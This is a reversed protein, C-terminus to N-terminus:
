QRLSALLVVEIIRRCSPCSMSMTREARVEDLARQTLGGLSQLHEKDKQLFKIAEDVSSFGYKWSNGNPYESDYIIIEVIM